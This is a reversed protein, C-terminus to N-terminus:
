KPTVAYGKIREWATEDILKRAEHSVFIKAGGRKLREELNPIGEILTLVVSQYPTINISPSKGIYESNEAIEKLDNISLRLRKLLETINSALRVVDSPLQEKRWRDRFFNAVESTVQVDKNNKGVIQSSSLSSSEAISLEAHELMAKVQFAIRSESWSLRDGKYVMDHTAISWAHQLFTKVQIEFVIDNFSKPRRNSVSPLSVYLRIDDFVFSDPSKHTFVPDKPRKYNIKFKKEILDLADQISAHNEVVLTAAFFDEMRSIIKVRSTESKLAFSEKGKVRSEYHWRGKKNNIFFNDVNNKLEEYLPFSDDYINRVSEVIKM